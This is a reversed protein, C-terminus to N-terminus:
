RFTLDLAELQEKAYWYGTNVIKKLASFEMFGFQRVPVELCIDASKETSRSKSTSGLMMTRMMIELINPIKLASKFPNLRRWLIQWPSPIERCSEDFDLKSDGVIKVAIVPGSTFQRMIDCPLNNFFGGDVLLKGNELVPLAVGPISSSARAMKGLPGQKHIAIENDSLNSSVCFYNIWLDEINRDGCFYHAVKDLKRSRVLSLIPFTYEKFPKIENFATHNIKLLTDLDYGIAHQAAIIAGMSTGGIMDIQVGADKLAEIVGIHALGRAGGGSLVLGVARGSLIRGLRAFDSKFGWRVHHHIDVNRAALLHRTGQPEPSNEPHLIILSRRVAPVTNEKPIYKKELEGPLVPMDREGVLLVHDARELCHETWPSDFPDTEFLIFRQATEQEDLWNSLRIGQYDSGSAQAIGPSNPFIEDLRSSNLHLTKQEDDLFAQLKKAFAALPVGSHAPLLVINVTNTETSKRFKIKSLRRILLSSLRQMVEPFRVVIEQLISQPFKVLDSNRVAYIDADHTEGTIIASEGIFDGRFFEEAADEQKSATQNLSQLHGSVVLYFSERTEGRMLLQEGKKLHLWEGRSSIRKLVDEAPLQLMKVLLHHLQNERFCQRSIEGILQLARPNKRLHKEIVESSICLLECYEKTRITATRKGGNLLQMEGFSEGTWIEAVVIEKGTQGAQLVELRGELVFYVADAADGERFLTKDAALNIFTADASLEQLNSEDFAAFFPANALTTSINELYEQNRTM